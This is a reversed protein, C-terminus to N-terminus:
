YLVDENELFFIEADNEGEDITYEDYVVYDNHVIYDDHIIYDDHVICNLQDDM